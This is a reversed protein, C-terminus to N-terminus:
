AASHFRKAPQQALAQRVVRDAEAPDLPWAIYDFAGACMANLCAEWEACRSVIIMPIEPASARLSQLLAAVNGGCMQDSCFVLAFRDRALLACAERLDTAFILYLGCRYAVPAM